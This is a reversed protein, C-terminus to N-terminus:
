YGSPIAPGPAIRYVRLIHSFEDFRRRYIEALLEVQREPIKPLPTWANSRTVLFFESPPFQRAKTRVFLNRRLNEPLYYSITEADDSFISAEGQYRRMVANAAARYDHRSGDVYHSLLNPMLLLGVCGYWAAAALPNELRRAVADVAHAAVVWAAPLFFLFYRPNWTINTFQFLCLSGCFMLSLWLMAAHTERRLICLCVGLLTLALTPIGLQAIFSILVPTPNGTSNWGSVLPLLYFVYLLVSVFAAVGSRAVLHLRARGLLYLACSAVFALGFVPVTINHSLVALLTLVAIAPLVLVGRAPIWMLVLTATMLLLPMSYFRDVQALYVFPQSANMVIALAAAFWLGRWRAAVVFALASMLVGFIVSPLRFSVDSKPLRDIAFRQFAYWVPLVKTIRGIQNTPVSFAQPDVHILGMEVLSPVEDDAMPWTRIGYSQLCVAIVVVIALALWLRPGWPEGQSTQRTQEVTDAKM